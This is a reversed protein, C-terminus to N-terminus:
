PWAKGSPIPPPRAQLVLGVGLRRMWESNQPQAFVRPLLLQPVAHKLALAATGIGGHHIIVATSPLIQELPLFDVSNVQGDM